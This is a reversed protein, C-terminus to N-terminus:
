RSSSSRDESQNHPVYLYVIVEMKKCNRRNEEEKKRLKRRLSFIRLPFSNAIGNEDEGSQCDKLQNTEGRRFV